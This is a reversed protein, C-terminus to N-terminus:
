WIVYEHFYYLDFDDITEIESEGLKEKLKNYFTDIMKPTLKLEEVNDNTGVYYGM